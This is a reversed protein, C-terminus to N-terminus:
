SWRPPPTISRTTWLDYGLTPRYREGKFWYEMDIAVGRTKTSRRRIKYKSRRLQPEVRTANALAAGALPLTPKPLRSTM